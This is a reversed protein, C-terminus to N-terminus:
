LTRLKKFFRKPKLMLNNPSGRINKIGSLFPKILFIALFKRSVHLSPKVM